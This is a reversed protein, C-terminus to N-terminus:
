AMPKQIKLLINKSKSPIEADLWSDNIKVKKITDLHM